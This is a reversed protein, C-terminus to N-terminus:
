NEDQGGDKYILLADEGYLNANIGMDAYGFGYSSYKVDVFKKNGTNMFTNMQEDIPLEDTRGDNSFKKFKIM